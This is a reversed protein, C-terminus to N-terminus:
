CPGAGWLWLALTNGTPAVEDIMYAMILPLVLEAFTGIAKLFLGFAMRAKYSSLYSFVTKM